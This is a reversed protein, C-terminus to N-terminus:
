RATARWAWARPSGSTTRGSAAARLGTLRGNATVANDGSVIAGFQNGQAMLATRGFTLLGDSWLLDGLAQLAWGGAPGASWSRGVIGNGARKSMPEVYMVCDFGGSPDASLITADGFGVDGRSMNGVLIPDGVAM